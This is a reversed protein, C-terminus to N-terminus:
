SKLRREISTQSHQKRVLSASQDVQRRIEEVDRGLLELSLLLGPLTLDTAIETTKKRHTAGKFLISKNQDRIKM